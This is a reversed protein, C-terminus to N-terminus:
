HYNMFHRSASDWKMSKTRNPSLRLHSLQSMRWPCQHGNCAMQRQWRVMYIWWCGVVDFDKLIYLCLGFLLKLSQGHHIFSKLIPTEDWWLPEGASHDTCCHTMIVEKGWIEILHLELGIWSRVMNVSCCVSLIVAPISHTHIGTAWCTSNGSHQSARPVWVQLHFADTRVYTFPPAKPDQSRVTAMDLSLNLIKFLPSVTVSAFIACKAMAKVVAAAEMEHTGVMYM